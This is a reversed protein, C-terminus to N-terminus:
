HQCCTPAPTDAVAAILQHLQHRQATTLHQDQCARGLADLDRIQKDTPRTTTNM